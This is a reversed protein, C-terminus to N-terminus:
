ELAEAMEEAEIEEPTKEHKKHTYNSGGVGSLAFKEGQHKM